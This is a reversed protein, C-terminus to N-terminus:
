FRRARGEKFASPDYLLMDRVDALTFGKNREVCAQLCHLIKRPWVVYRSWEGDGEDEDVAAIIKVFWEVVAKTPTRLANKPVSLPSLVFRIACFHALVINGLQNTPDFVHVLANHPWTSFITLIATFAIFSPIPNPAGPPPTTIASWDIHQFTSDQNMPLLPNTFALLDLSCTTTTTPSTSQSLTTAETLGPTPLTNDNGSDVTDSSLLHRLTQVLQGVLAKEMDHVDPGAMLDSFDRLSLLAERILGQDIEPFNRFTMDMGIFDLSRRGALFGGNGSSVIFQSLVSCGRLSLFHELFGDEMYSSQFSLLYSAALMVHSEEATTPWRSFADELGVIAKQRHQLALSTKPNDVQVALHSGALALMADMLYPYKIKRKKCTLCGLRSKTHGRRQRLASLTTPDGSSATVSQPQTQEESSVHEEARSVKPSKRTSRFPPSEELFDGIPGLAMYGEFLDDM